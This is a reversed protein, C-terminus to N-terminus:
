NNLRSIISAFGQVADMVDRGMRAMAIKLPRSLTVEVVVAM